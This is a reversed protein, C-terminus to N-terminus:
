KLRNVNLYGSFNHNDVHEIDGSLLFENENTQSFNFDIMKKDSFYVNVYDVKVFDVKVM